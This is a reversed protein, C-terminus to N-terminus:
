PRRTGSQCFNELFKAPDAKYLANLIKRCLSPAAKRFKSLNKTMDLNLAVEILRNIAVPNKTHVKAVADYFEKAKKSYGDYFEEDRLKNWNSKTYNNFEEALKLIKNNYYKSGIGSKRLFFDKTPIVASRPAMQIKNLCDQLWNMPCVIDANVRNAIKERETKVIEYDLPNGNKTTPVEKTYKMFSPFESNLMCPMRKIRAIEEISDVEYSRKSSDIIVQALVALIIFNDHLDQLTDSEEKRLETWYYSLALQALNSSEGIGRKSKAMQIDMRAYDEMTNNYTLGSEKLANVVTPYDQYCRRACRVLTPHNTAFIFDSDFDAGNLRSQIDTHLCNVAIVNKSLMFYKQLEYSYHNHLYVINECSNQPSRFGCLYEGDAFQNTFCQITGYETQFSPDYEPDDGVAHLLLAYPNGCLTLNDGHVTIKGGRLKMVYQNLIRTKETRFYESDAFVPNHRYLAALMEFHNVANANKDLFKVFEENNMKLEEVYAVSTAAIEEMEEATCPLSNIMQYSMQQVSGLKSPHDTKVIGWYSGDANVKDMWYQLPDDGMLDKLKLWKIANNTTIMKIDKLYHSRGFMDRVQYTEYDHGNEACWDKFFTSMYTRFACAKFFHGRLLMMSNCYSPYCSTDLLAMGDFLENVVDTERRHVVCKKRQVGDADVYDEAEVVSAMTTFVSRVDKLILVNEVPVHIKGVITSTTLPMYASMEVIKANHDPLRVGMSLWNYAVDYLDANIFCVQGIKAKSANRYLMKYHIVENGYDISVGEKYFLIRIEDKSLKRYKSANADVEALIERLRKLKATDETQKIISLLHKREEEYSRSGYDFDLCIIDRTSEGKHVRLGHAVMYESFLSDNLVADTYDFHNRMGCNYGFLSGAKINKIRIADM